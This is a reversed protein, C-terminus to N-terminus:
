AASVHQNEATRGAIDPDRGLEADVSGPRLKIEAASQSSIALQDLVSSRAPSLRVILVVVAVILAFGFLLCGARCGLGEMGRGVVEGGGRSRGSGMTVEREDQLTARSQVEPCSTITM